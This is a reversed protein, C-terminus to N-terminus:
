HQYRCDGSSHNFASYPQHFRKWMTSPRYDVSWVCIHRSLFYYQVKEVSHANSETEQPFESCECFLALLSRVSSRSCGIPDEDDPNVATLIRSSSSQSSYKLPIKIYYDHHQATGNRTSYITRRTSNPQELDVTAQHCMRIIALFLM